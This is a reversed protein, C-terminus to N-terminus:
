ARGRGAARFIDLDIAAKLAATKQVAQVMDFVIGPNLPIEAQNSEQM